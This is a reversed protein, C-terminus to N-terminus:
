EQSAESLEIGSWYAYAADGKPAGHVITMSVTQGSFDSLDIALRQWQDQPDPLLIHQLMVIGNIRVNLRSPVLPGCSVNLYLFPKDSDPVDVRAALRTPQTHAKTSLVASRGALEVHLGTKDDSMGSFISWGPLVRDVGIRLAPAISADAEYSAGINNRAEAPALELIKRVAPIGGAEDLTATSLWLRNGRAVIAGSLPTKAPLNLLLESAIPRGTQLDLWVVVPVQETGVLPRYCVYCLYQSANSPTLCSVVNQTAHGWLLRGDSTDAQVIADAGHVYLRNNSVGLIKRMGPLPLRWLLEGTDLAVCNVGQNGEVASYVRNGDVVPPQQWQENGNTNLQSPLKPEQRVWLV